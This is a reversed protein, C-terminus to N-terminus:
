SIEVTVAKKFGQLYSNNEKEMWILAPSSVLNVTQKYRVCVRLNLGQNNGLSRKRSACQDRTNDPRTMSSSFDHLVEGSVLAGNEWRARDVVLYTITSYFLMVLVM